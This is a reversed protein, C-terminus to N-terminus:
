EINFDYYRNPYPENILTYHWWETRISKFGHKQMTNKLLLRNATQLPSISQADWGSIPDLFDFPSGMDLEERSELSVITVDVTSGRSHASRRALYGLDFLQSKDLNPYYFSKMKQNSGDWSWRIFHDVAKQPRYADFIKLGYGQENLDQNVAKLATAAENTLIGVLANYGDIRAGVFNNESYYRIDLHLGPVVQDVYVFGAPLQSPLSEEPSYVYHTCGVLLTILPFLIMLLLRKM